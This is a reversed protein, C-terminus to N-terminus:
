LLSTVKAGRKRAEGADAAGGGFDIFVDLEDLGVAIVVAAGALPDDDAQAALVLEAGLQVGEDPQEIAGAAPNVGFPEDSGFM